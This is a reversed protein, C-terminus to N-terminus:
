LSKVIWAKAAFTTKQEDTLASYVTSKFAITASQISTNLNMDYVTNAINTVSDSSLPCDSMDFTTLSVFAKGLDTFGSVSTLSSCVYFIGSMNTVSSTDLLPVTTLSSCKYFM